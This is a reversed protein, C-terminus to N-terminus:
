RCIGHLCGYVNIRYAWANQTWYKVFQDELAYGELYWTYRDDLAAPSGQDTIVITDLPPWTSKDNVDFKVWAAQIAAEIAKGIANRDCVGSVTFMDYTCQADDLMKGTIIM